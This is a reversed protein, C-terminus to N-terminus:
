TELQDLSHLALSIYVFSSGQNMTRPALSGPYKKSGKVGLKVGLVM